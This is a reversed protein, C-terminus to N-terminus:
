MVDYKIFELLFFDWLAASGLVSLGLFLEAFAFLFGVVFYDGLEVASVV